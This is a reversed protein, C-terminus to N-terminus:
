YGGEGIGGGSEVPIMKGNKEEETLKRTYTNKGDSCQEPYSEVIDYGAEDCTKFSNVMVKNGDVSYGEQSALYNFKYMGALVVLVVISAGGVLVYKIKENNKM